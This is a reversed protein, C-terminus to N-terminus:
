VELEIKTAPPADFSAKQGAKSGSVIALSDSLWQMLGGFDYGKLEFVRGNSSLLKVLKQLDAGEVGFAWPIIKKSKEFDSIKTVVENWKYDGENIDTPYGDTIIVFWPRYKNIGQEQYQKKREELLDLGDLIAKGMPTGGSATLVPPNFDEVTGFPYPTIMGGFTIVCLDVVKKAKEDRLLADKLESVATNLKRIPEGSMSESTDLLLCVPCKMEQPHRIEQPLLDELGPM